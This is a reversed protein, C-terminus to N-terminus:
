QALSDLYTKIVQTLGYFNQGYNQQRISKGIDINFIESNLIFINLRNSRVSVFVKSKYTLQKSVDVALAQTQELYARDYDHLSNTSVKFKQNGPLEITHSLARNFFLAYNDGQEDETPFRPRITLDEPTILIETKSLNFNFHATFLLSPRLSKIDLESIKLKYNEESYNFQGKGEFHSKKLWNKFFNTEVIEELDHHELRNYSCNTLINSIYPHILENKVKDNISDIESSSGAINLILYLVITVATGIAFIIWSSLIVGGLISFFIILGVILTKIFTSKRIGDFEKHYKKILFERDERTM